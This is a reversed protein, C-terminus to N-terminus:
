MAMGLQKEKPLSISALFNIAEDNKWEISRLLEEFYYDAKQKTMIPGLYLVTGDKPLLNTPSDKRSNFLDM